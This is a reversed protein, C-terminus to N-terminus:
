VQKQSDHQESTFWVLVYINKGSVIRVGYLASIMEILKGFLSEQSFFDTLVDM